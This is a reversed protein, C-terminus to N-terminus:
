QHIRVGPEGFVAGDMSAAFCEMVSLVLFKEVCSQQSSFLRPDDSTSDALAQLLHELEQLVNVAAMMSAQRTCLEQMPAYQGVLLSTLLKVTWACGVCCSRMSSRTSARGEVDTTGKWIIARRGSNTPRSECFKAM